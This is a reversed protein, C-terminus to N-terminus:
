SPTFKVIPTRNLAKALITRKPPDTARDTIPKPPYESNRHDFRETATFRTLRAGWPVKIMLLWSPHCNKRTFVLANFERWRM